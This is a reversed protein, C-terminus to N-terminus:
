LTTGSYSSRSRTMMMFWIPAPLRALLVMLVGEQWSGQKHVVQYEGETGGPRCPSRSDPATGTLAGYGHQWQGSASCDSSLTSHCLCMGPGFVLYRYVFWSTVFVGVLELVGSVVPINDLANVVGNLVWLGVFAAATLGLAAPKEETKDWKDKLDAVIKETREYIEDSTDKTSKTQAIL